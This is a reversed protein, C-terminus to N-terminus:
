VFFFKLRFLISSETIGYELKILTQVTQHHFRDMLTKIRVRDFFNNSLIIILGLRKQMFLFCLEVDSM